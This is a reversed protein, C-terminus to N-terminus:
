VNYMHHLKLPFLCPFLLLLLLVVVFVSNTRYCNNRKQTFICNDALYVCLVTITIAFTIILCNAGYTYLKRRLKQTM